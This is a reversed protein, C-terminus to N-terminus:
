KVNLAQRMAIVDGYKGALLLAEAELAPVTEPAVIEEPTEQKEYQNIAERVLARASAAIDRKAKEGPLSYPTLTSLQQDLHSFPQGVYSPPFINLKQTLEVFFDDADQSGVYFAHKGQRFLKQRLDDRPEELIDVWYLCYEFHPVKALHNLVPDNEGSYGAVIWMRGEGADTFVPKLLKSHKRVEEPTHLAVFGSRQGHLHFIAQKPVFAPKFVQSAAFDYIAPFEGVRACARSVLPDFNTTLVRDVYGEAILQAIGIHAWNLKAKDVYEAIMEHRWGPSLEAMCYPYTKNKSRNYDQSYSKKIEEVFGRALPIGASLSCGAGILLSCNRNNAKCNTLTELVDEITRNISEDAM